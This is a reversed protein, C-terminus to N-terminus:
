NTPVVHTEVSFSGAADVTVKFWQSLAATQAYVQHGNTVPEYPVDGIAAFSFQPQAKASCMVLFAVACVAARAIQHNISLHYRM